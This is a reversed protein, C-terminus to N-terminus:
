QIRFGRSDGIFLYKSGDSYSRVLCPAGKIGSPSQFVTFAGDSTEVHFTIPENWASPERNCGLFVGANETGTCAVEALRHCGGLALVALLLWEIGRRRM